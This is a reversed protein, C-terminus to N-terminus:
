GPPLTAKTAAIFAFAAASPMVFVLNSSGVPSDGCLTEVAM